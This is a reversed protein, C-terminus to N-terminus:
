LLKDPEGHRWSNILLERVSQFLLITQDEPLMLDEDPVTVTVTLDYKGVYQGLWKLGAALGQERLVPPNLDTVLTRTYALARSLAEDVQNMLTACGHDQAILKGQRLKIKGLVLEQQIHTTFTPRFGNLDFPARLSAPWLPPLALPVMGLLESYSGLRQNSSIAQLLLSM